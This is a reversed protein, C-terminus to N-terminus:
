ASKDLAETKLRRAHDLEYHHALLDGGFDGLPDRLVSHTHNANNQTCDYEILLREGQIRYYHPADFDAPGAWAFTTGDFQAPKFLDDHQRQVADPLHEFYVRVRRELAERQVANMDAAPLGKPTLSYRYLNRKAM